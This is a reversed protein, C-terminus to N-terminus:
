VQCNNMLYKALTKVMWCRERIAYIEGAQLRQVIESGRSFRTLIDVVNVNMLNQVSLGYM